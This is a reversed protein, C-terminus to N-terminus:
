VFCQHAETVLLCQAVPLRVHPRHATYTAEIGSSAAMTVSRSVRRITSCIHMHVHTVRTRTDLPQDTAASALNQSAAVNEGGCERWKATHHTLMATFVAYDLASTYHQTHNVAGAVWVCCRVCYESSIQDCRLKRLAM